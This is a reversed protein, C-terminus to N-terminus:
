ADALACDMSCYVAPGQYPQGCHDCPREPWVPNRYPDPLVPCPRPLAADWRWPCLEWPYGCPCKDPRFERM